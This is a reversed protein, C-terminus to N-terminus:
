IPRRTRTRDILGRAGRVNRLVRDLTGENNPLLNASIREEEELTIM